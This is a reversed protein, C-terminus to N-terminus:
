EKERDLNENVPESYMEKDSESRHRQRIKEKYKRLQSEMKHIVVDILGMLDAGRDTSVFDHKHEASVKLDVSPMQEHELDITLHISTLRDFIRTIKMMKAEIKQRSAESLHGHRTSIDVQM